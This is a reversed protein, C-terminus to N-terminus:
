RCSGGIIPAQEAPRVTAGRRLVRPHTPHTSGFFLASPPCFDKRTMRFLRMSEITECHFQLSPERTNDRQVPEYVRNGVWKQLWFNSKVSEPGNHFPSQSKKTKNSDCSSAIGEEGQSRRVNKRKRASKRIAFRRCLIVTAVLIPGTKADREAVSGTGIKMRIHATTGETEEHSTMRHNFEVCKM